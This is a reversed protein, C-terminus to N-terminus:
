VRPLNYLRPQSSVNPTYLPQAGTSSSGASAVAGAPGGNNGSVSMSTVSSGGPIVNTTVYQQDGSATGSAGTSGDNAMNTVTVTKGDPSM